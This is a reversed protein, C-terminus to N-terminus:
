RAIQEGALYDLKVSRLLTQWNSNTQADRPNAKRLSAYATVADYWFGERAYIAAKQSPTANRLQKALAPSPQVRTVATSVLQNASADNLDCRIVFQWLYAQNPKLTKGAPLSVGVVGPSTGTVTAVTILVTDGNAKTEQLRLEGPRNATLSYPVYVWFTPREDVTQGWLYNEGGSLKYTPILATLPPTMETCSGGKRKGGNGTGALTGTNPAPPLNVQVTTSKNQARKSANNGVPKTQGALMQPSFSIFSAVSFVVSLGIAKYNLSFNVRNMM